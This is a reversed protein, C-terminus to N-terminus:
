REFVLEPVGVPEDSLVPRAHLEFFVAAFFWIVVLHPPSLSSSVGGDGTPPSSTPIQPPSHLLHDVRGRGRERRLDVVTDGWPLDLGLLKNLYTPFGTM